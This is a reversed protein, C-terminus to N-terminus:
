RAIRIVKYPDLISKTKDNLSKSLDYSVTQGETTETSIGGSKLLNFFSAVMENVAMTIDIPLTHLVADTENTFDILYGATYVVQLGQPYEPLMGFFHLYGPALYTLYSDSSYANWIPTSPTGSRYKVSTITTVPIQRLFIKRRGQKMDYVETYSASKFNRGCYQKVFASAGNILSELVADSASDTIGLNAKVKTLTTLADPVTAM